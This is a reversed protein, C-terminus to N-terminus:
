LCLYSLLLSKERYVDFIFMGAAQSAAAEKHKNTTEGRPKIKWCFLVPIHCPKAALNSSGCM